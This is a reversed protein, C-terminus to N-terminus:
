DVVTRSVERGGADSAFVGPEHVTVAVREAITRNTESKREDRVGLRPLGKVSRHTRQDGGHAIAAHPPHSSGLWGQEGLDPQVRVDTDDPAVFATL